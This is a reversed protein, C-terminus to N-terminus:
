LGPFKLILLNVSAASSCAAKTPASASSFRVRYGRSVQVKGADDLVWPVRFMHHHVPEVLREILSAKEYEPHAEVRAGPKRLVEWYASIMRRNQCQSLLSEPVSRESLCNQYVHIYVRRKQHAATKRKRGCQRFGQFQRFARPGRNREGTNINARSRMQCYKQFIKNAAIYCTYGM